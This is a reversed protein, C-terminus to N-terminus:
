KRGRKPKEESGSEVEDEDSDLVKKPKEDAVHAPHDIYDPGLRKHSEEDHVVKSHKKLVAEDLKEFDVSKHYVCKPYSM